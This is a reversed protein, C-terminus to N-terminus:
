PEHFPLGAQYLKIRARLRHALVTKNQALALRLARTATAVADDFRGAEAYAAALTGLIAPRHNRSLEVAHEALAVAEAGNRLSADKCTALVWALENLTVINEPQFRV